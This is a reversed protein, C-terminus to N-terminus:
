AKNWSIFDNLLNEGEMVEEEAEILVINDLHQIMKNKNLQM